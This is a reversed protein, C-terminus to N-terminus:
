RPLLAVPWACYSPAADRATLPASLLAPTRRQPARGGPQQGGVRSAAVGSRGATLPSPLPAPTSSM